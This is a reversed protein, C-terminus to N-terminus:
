GAKAESEVDDSSDNSALNFLFYGLGMEIFSSYSWIVSPLEIGIVGWLDFEAYSGVLDVIGFVILLLGLIKM